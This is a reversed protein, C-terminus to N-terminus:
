SGGRKRANYFYRVAQEHTEGKNRIRYHISGINVGLEDLWDKLIKQENNLTIVINTRRNRSQQTTNAWRCNSPTYGLNNDIRDISCGNPRPGMDSYFNIFEKWSPAISIGRGGYHKFSKHNPNLCRQIIESWISYETSRSKGKRAMGHKQNKPLCGCSKVRGKRLDYANALAKGGCSCKCLWLVNSKSDRGGDAIVTLQNFTQSILNNKQM